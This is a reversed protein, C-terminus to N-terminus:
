MARALTLFYVHSAGAQRLLRACAELTAGTTYVDDILLVRRNKLSARNTVRFANGVNEVRKKRNLGTQSETDKVRVLLHAPTPSQYGTDTRYNGAPPPGWQDLLFAVQDFGRRVAKKRHLPVPIVYDIPVISFHKLFHVHLLTGLPRGLGTKMGYKYAHVLKMLSGSFSGCSRAFVFPKEGALCEGCLHSDDVPSAFQIGCQTCYPPLVPSFDAICGICLSRAMVASFIRASDDNKLQGVNIESHTADKDLIGDPSGNCARIGLM